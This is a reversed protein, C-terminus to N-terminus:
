AIEDKLDRHIRFYIELGHDIDSSKIRKFAHNSSLRRKKLGSCLKWGYTGMVISGIWSTVGNRTGTM